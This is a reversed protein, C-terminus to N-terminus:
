PKRGIVTWSYGHRHHLQIETFGAESMLERVESERYYKAYAPNLQDYIVLYRAHWDLKGVVNRMYSALPLPWRRAVAAYAGLGANLVHCLGALLGHPLRTTLWRLPRVVSLYLENGERGYLWLLCAGGPRLAAHAARLAPKPDPIHHIVGISVVLDLELGAPLQEGPAHHYCIRDAFPATNRKLVDVAASPEVAHVFAAGADILMLVIRGSGSGIDAVKAGRIDAPGLLPSVIDFFMDGSAYYGDNGPHALWQDGFDSITRRSLESRQM